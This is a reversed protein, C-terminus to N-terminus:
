SGVIIRDIDPAPAFPNSFEISNIGSDLKVRLTLSGVTEWDNTAPFRLLAFRGDNVSVTANRDDASIYHIALTYVGGFPVVVRNFRLANARAGGINGIV